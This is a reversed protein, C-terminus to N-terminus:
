SGGKRPQVWYCGENISTGNYFTTGTVRHLLDVLDGEDDAVDIDLLAHNDVDWTHGGVGVFQSGPRLPVIPPLKKSALKAEMKGIVFRARDLLAKDATSLLHCQSRAARKFPVDDRIGFSKSLPLGLIDDAGHNWVLLMEGGAAVISGRQLTSM